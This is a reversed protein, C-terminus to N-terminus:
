EEEVVGEDDEAVEGFGIGKDAQFEEPSDFKEPAVEEYRNAKFSNIEPKKPALSKRYGRLAEKGKWYILLINDTAQEIEITPYYKHWLAIADQIQLHKDDAEYRCDSLMLRGVDNYTDNKALQYFATVIKKRTEHKQGSDDLTLFVQGSLGRDMRAKM